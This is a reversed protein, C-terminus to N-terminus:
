DAATALRAARRFWGAHLAAAAHLGEYLLVSQKASVIHPDTAEADTLEQQGRYNETIQFIVKQMAGGALDMLESQERVRNDLDQMKKRLEEYRRDRQGRRARDYLARSNEIGPKLLEGFNEFQGVLDSLRRKFAGRDFRAPEPAILEEFDPRQDQETFKVEAVTVRPVGRFEAGASGVNFIEFNAREALDAAFRREFWGHFIVLKDNARVRTAGGSRGAAKGPVDVPSYGPLYRVPLASLQRYNHMERRFLRSEKYNLREELVAGKAHALGGTFSLDQGAFLVRRCGLKLALDYANTSVSGGFAVEGPEEDLHDYFLKALPFPSWTYFLREPALLRLSLYSTTPDAVFLAASQECGELYYRNLPQPDVTVVLDPDIGGSLLVRLATDVAILVVRDRIGAIKELDDTLSPGAGCVLATRNPTLGFLRRVPRARELHVFNATLNRAWSRDFRSLTALNVDKKNLFNEIRKQLEAYAPDAAYSARHSLFLIERNGRGAFLETLLDDGPVGTVLSLRGSRLAARFDTVELARAAVEGFPELWVVPNEFRQLFREILYGLGAGFFLVLQDASDAHFEALQREAEKYPDHRSHLYRGRWRLTYADDTLAILETEDIRALFERRLEPAVGLLDFQEDQLGAKM